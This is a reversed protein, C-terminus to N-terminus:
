ASRIALVKATSTRRQLEDWTICEGEGHRIRAVLDGPSDGGLRALGYNPRLVGYKGFTYGASQLMDATVVADDPVDTIVLRPIYHYPTTIHILYHVCGTAM